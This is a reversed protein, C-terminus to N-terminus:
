ASMPLGPGPVLRTTSHSLIIISGMRRLERMIWGGDLWCITYGERVPIEYDAVKLNYSQIRINRNNALTERITDVLSLDTVNTDFLRTMSEPLNEYGLAKEPDITVPDVIIDRNVDTTRREIEALPAPPTVEFVSPEVQYQPLVYPPTTLCGTMCVINLGSLFGPVIAQNLQIDNRM